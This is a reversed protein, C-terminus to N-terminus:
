RISVKPLMPIPVSVSTIISNNINNNVHVLSVTNGDGTTPETKKPTTTNSKNAPNDSDDGSEEKDIKLM